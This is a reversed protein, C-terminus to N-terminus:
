EAYFDVLVPVQGELLASDLDTEGGEILGGSGGFSVSSSHLAAVQTATKLPVLLSSSVLPMPRLIGMVPM